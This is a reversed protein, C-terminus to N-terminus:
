NDTDLTFSESLGNVRVTYEGAPLGEVALDHSEEFPVLAMTCAVDGAPTETIVQITFTNGDRSSRIEHIKTCGDPLNGTLQARVQVPYSEMVELSLGEIFADSSILMDDRGAIPDEEFVNDVDLTFEAQQDQAIVTYTGAELGEIELDVTEEFPELAMTCVVDGTPRRTVLTVTFEQDERAVDIEYLETCGDPLYGSVVARAQLPFSELLLLEISEVIAEQGYAYDDDPPVDVPLEPRCATLVVGALLVFIVAFKLKKM